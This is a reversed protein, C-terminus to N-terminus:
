ENFNMELLEKRTKGDAWLHATHQDLGNNMLWKKTAANVVM